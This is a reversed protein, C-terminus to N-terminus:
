RSFAILQIPGGTGVGNLALFDTTGDGDHDIPVVDDATTAPSPPPPMAVVSYGLGDGRNRLLLDHDGAAPKERLLYLDPDGDGDADGAAIAVGGSVSREYGVVFRGERQLSVRVRALSLQVLDLAGDGDLDVLGADADGISTVGMTSGIEQSGEPTNRYLRIRSTRSASFREFQVVLLDVRGDGDVDATDLSLAGAEIDFGPREDVRLDAPGQLLYLRNVSPLGDIRGPKQALFLDEDGDADADLFTALRGRGVPEQAGGASPHLVPSPGGPDLWLENAKVRKGFLAGFSCYLDPLGSGDIDAAACGHRDHQSFPVGRLPAFTGGANLLLQPLGGHRGLFIDPTGSGDFDAIVAGYTRSRTILGVETTVDRVALDLPAAEPELAQAGPLDRAPAPLYPPIRPLVPSSVRGPQDLGLPATRGQRRTSAVQGCARALVGGLRQVGGVVWGAAFPDGSVGYFASPEDAQDFAVTEWDGGAWRFLAARFGGMATDWIAGVAIAAGDGLADVGTMVGPTSGPPPDIAAWASGDWRLALPAYVGDVLRYGVAWGDHSAIAIDAVVAEGIEPIATGRWGGPVRQGIYPRIVGDTSSSGAIWVGGAPDVSVSTLMGGSGPPWAPSDEVWRSRDWRLAWPVRHGLQLLQYGVAWRVHAGAGVDTLVASGQGLDPVPLEVWRGERRRMAIARMGKRGWADGVVWLDQDSTGDIGTFASGNRPGTADSAEWAGDRLRLVTATSKEGVDGGGAAWAHTASFTRVSTPLSDAEITADRWAAACPTGGLVAMPLPAPLLTALLGLTAAIAAVRRRRAGRTV